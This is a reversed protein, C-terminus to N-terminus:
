YFEELVVVPVMSIDAQGGGGGPSVSTGAGGGGGGGAVLIYNIANLDSFRLSVSTTENIHYTDNFANEIKYAANSPKQAPVNTQILDIVTPGTQIIGNRVQTYVLSVNGIFNSPLTLVANRLSSNVTSKSGSFTIPNSGSILGIINRNELTVQYYDTEGVGNDDIQIPFSLNFYVNTTGYAYGRSVNLNATEANTPLCIITQSRTYTNGPPTLLSYNLVINGIYDDTPILTLTSLQSNVSRANGTLSHVNNSWNSGNITLSKIAVNTDSTITFTYTNNEYDIINNIDDVIKPSKIIKETDEGYTIVPVATLDKQWTTSTSWSFITNSSIGEFKHKDLDQIINATTRIFYSSNSSLYHNIPISIINGTITDSNNYYGIGVKATNASINGSTISYTALLINPTAKEYLYINGSIPVINARDIAITITENEESSLNGNNPYTSSIVPNGATTFTTLNGGIPLQLNGDQLLFGQDLIVRYTENSGWDIGLGVTDIRISTNAM